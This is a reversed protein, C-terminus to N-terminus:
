LKNILEYHDLHSEYAEILASLPVKHEYAWRRATEEQKQSHICSQDLINGETTYYHGLEEAIISEREARTDLSSDVCIIGDMYLGKLGNPLKTEIIEIEQKSLNPM